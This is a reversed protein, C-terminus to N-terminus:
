RSHDENWDIKTINNGNILLVSIEREFGIGWLTLNMLTHKGYQNTVPHHTYLNTFFLPHVIQIENNKIEALFTLEAFNVIYLVRELYRLSSFIQIGYYDLKKKFANSTDSYGLAVGNLLTNKIRPSLPSLKRPDKITKIETSGRGHGLHALVQYGEADKIVSNTCTSETFFIKSTSKEYFYVTGGWEGHCDGYIIFDQDELIIPQKRLPFNLTSKEWKSGNWKYISNGSLAMLEQNFVWHYKFKRTNLKNELATDRQITDLTYCAFKGNEFLAILNNDFIISYSKPFNKSNDLEKEANELKTSFYPNKIVQHNIKFELYSKSILVKFEEDFPGYRLNDKDITDNPWTNKRFHEVIRKEFPNQIEQALSSFTIGILLITNFYKKTM